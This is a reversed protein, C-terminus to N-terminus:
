INSPKVGEISIVMNRTFSEPTDKNKSKASFLKSDFRTRAYDEDEFRLTEKAADRLTIRWFFIEKPFLTAHRPLSILLTNLPM